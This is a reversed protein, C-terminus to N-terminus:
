VERAGIGALHQCLHDVDIYGVLSEGKGFVLLEKNLVSDKHAGHAQAEHTFKGVLQVHRRGVHLGHPVHEFLCAGFEADAVETHLGLVHQAHFFAM